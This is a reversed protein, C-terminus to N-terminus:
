IRAEADTRRYTLRKGVIGAMVKDTRAKDGFGLGSRHNYRFDFEAAYRHLHTESIHHYIGYIGRKFISFFGEASNVGATVGTVRDTYAYEERSHDVASHKAFRRGVRVYQGAEDTMLHSESAINKMVIPAIEAATARDIHFSRAEGGREVLTLVVRKHSPGRGKEAGERNSIFTEDVEVFSGKGGMPALGGKRMAERIRHGIFWGTKFDVRLVRCFQNASFGKKSSCLLHMAQLWIHMEVHSKEFITRVKVTFPKRCAYCKYTGTRTSKGKLPGSKDIVGCHPCVRGNKWIISEVFAYAAEENRFRPEDLLSKPM